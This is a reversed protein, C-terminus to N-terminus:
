ILCKLIPAEVDNNMPANSRPESAFPGSYTEIGSTAAARTMQRRSMAADAEGAVFEGKTQLLASPGLM